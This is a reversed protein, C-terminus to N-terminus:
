RSRPAVVRQPVIVMLTGIVVILAGWWLWVQLPNIYVKFAARQGENDLGALVIYLDERLSSRLAVETTTEQNNSYFRLEPRLSGTETASARDKVKVDAALATFNSDQREGLKDLSLEFRGVNASQGIGLSIEQETKHATAATISVAMVVIGFHVLHAGYRDSKRQMLKRLGGRAKSKADRHMEGVITTLVLACVGYAMVAYLNQAGAWVVAATTVMAVLLPLAFVGRLRKLSTERWALFPGIAMLALLGLFFPVNITNFFPIGVAHKQGTVAESFIPFLVGWITAFCISLLLLNNLLFAAERSFLSGIPRDPKLEAHRFIMLGSTMVLIIALYLLFVWGVDTSAFAHVSQVVGSRTLFTGFVTLGYTVVILWINWRKLAGKREQVMVSHLYATATLWPLFSANEVPDWAWFGGWGLEIYAWYGGLVIGATLFSWAVLAWVRTHRIWDFSLSGSALAALCFAYPVALTTFGAYLMPPHIAMFPNQLLPNLGNGDPPIFPAAIYRFPNTLYTTITLFFLLSSNLFVLAWPAVQRPYHHIRAAVLAAGFGGFACWLLMSGDMGGWIASIKYVVDMARNSHQWVYQNTYDNTVFLAGLLATSVWVLLSGALTIRATIEILRFNRKVAGAIGVAIGALALFWSLWLAFHGVEAM